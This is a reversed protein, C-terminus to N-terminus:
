DGSPCRGSAATAAPETLKKRAQLVLRTGYYLWVEAGSIEAQAALERWEARHFGRKVSILADERV